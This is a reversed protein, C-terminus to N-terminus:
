AADKAHALNARRLLRRSPRREPFNTMALIPWADHIFAQLVPAPAYM